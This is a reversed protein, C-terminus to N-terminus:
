YDEIIIETRGYVESVFIMFIRRGLQITLPLPYSDMALIKLDPIKM